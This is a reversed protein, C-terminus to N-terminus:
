THHPAVRHMRASSIPKLHHDASRAPGVREVTPGRRASCRIGRSVLSLQAGPVEGSSVLHPNDIMRLPGDSQRRPPSPACPRALPCPGIRLAVSAFAKREGQTPYGQLEEVVERDTITLSLHCDDNLAAQSNSRDVCKDM